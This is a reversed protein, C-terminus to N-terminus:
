RHQQVVRRASRASEPSLVRDLRAEAIDLRADLAATVSPKDHPNRLWHWLTTM